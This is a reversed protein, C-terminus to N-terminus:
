AMNKHFHDYLFCIDFLNKFLTYSIDGYIMYDVKNTM